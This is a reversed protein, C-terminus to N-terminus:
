GFWCGQGAFAIDKRDGITGCLIMDSTETDDITFYIIVDRFTM